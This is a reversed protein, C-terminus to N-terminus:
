GGMGAIMGIVQRATVPDVVRVLVLGALASFLIWFVKKVLENKGFNELIGATDVKMALRIIQPLFVFLPLFLMAAGAFALSLDTKEALFIGPPICFVLALTAASAVEGFWFYHRKEMCTTSEERTLISLDFIGLTNVMGYWVAHTEGPDAVVGLFLIAVPVILLILPLHSVLFIIALLCGSGCIAIRTQLENEFM